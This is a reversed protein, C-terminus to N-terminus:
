LGHGPESDPQTVSLTFDVDWTDGFRRSVANYSLTKAKGSCDKAPSDYLIDFESKGLSNAIMEANGRPIRSLSFSIEISMAAPEESEDSGSGGYIKGDKGILRGDWNEFAIIDRIEEASRKVRYNTIFPSIDIGDIVAHIMSHENNGTIM